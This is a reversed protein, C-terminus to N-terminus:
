VAVVDSEAVADGGDSPIGPPMEFTPVADHPNAGDAM